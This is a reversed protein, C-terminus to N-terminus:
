KGVSDQIAKGSKELLEGSEQLIKKHLPRNDFPNSLLPKHRGINIGWWLGLILGIVIGLIVLRLKKMFLHSENFGDYHLLSRIHCFGPWLNYRRIGASNM